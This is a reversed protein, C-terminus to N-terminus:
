AAEQLHRAIYEDVAERITESRDGHGHRAGIAALLHLHYRSIRVTTPESGGRAAHVPTTDHPTGDM